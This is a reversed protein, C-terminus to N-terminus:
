GIMVDEEAVVGMLSACTDVSGRASEYVRASGGLEGGRGEGKDEEGAYNAHEASKRQGARYAHASPLKTQACGTM